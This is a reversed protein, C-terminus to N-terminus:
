MDENDIIIEDLYTMIEKTLEFEDQVSGKKRVIKVKLRGEEDESMKFFKLHLLTRKFEITIRKKDEDANILIESNVEARYRDLINFIGVPSEETLFENMSNFKYTPVYAKSSIIALDEEEGRERKPASRV